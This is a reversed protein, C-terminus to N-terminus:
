IEPIGLEKLRENVKKITDQPSTVTTGTVSPHNFIEYDNGGKHTMDGFFYIQKQKIHRLCYTKDWGKPFIDISIQGGISCQINLSDGFKENIQQAISERFRKQKDLECFAQREETSCSRGVPSVNMMSHRLEIFNGRKVPLECKSLLLLIFNVLLGYNEEGLYGIFSESSVLEKGRYFQVGNEPFGFDFITLLESGIQEQQKKLDSGGVFGIYARKKLETLMNLIEEPAKQRSPTLTGDVDFLFLVNQKTIQTM